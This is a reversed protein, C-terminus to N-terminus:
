KHALIMPDLLKVTYGLIFFMVKLCFGTETKARIYRPMLATIGSFTTEVRNRRISLRFEDSACHRRKAGKKRKAILNIGKEFLLFDELDYDTFAADGFLSSGRPLDIALKRLGCIDPDSGPSFVFEIPVGDSSVIMHVKIGFFYQKKSATYGHFKKGQFLKCRFRKYNQCVAVPFSDVIYEKTASSKTFNRSIAFIMIWANEPIQHIRRIIRSHSLIKSFYGLSSVVLRTTKYNGQYFMASIMVFTIIEAQSMKSLSDEKLNLASAITDAL